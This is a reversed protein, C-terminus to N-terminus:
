YGVAVLCLGGAPATPGGRARSRAALAAEVDARTWRGEGVWKLTGVMNRVQHHLFSRAEAEITIEQGSRVVHLRDLTKMPSAAQCLTARFTSFDHHGELCRAAGAMAAADLPKPVWWVHGRDLVPPAKRNIIRYRYFRARASFRAHFDQTVREAHLVAVAAPRLHFNIANRVTDPAFERELDVHAVQGTAHVGADTRGAASIRLDEGCFRIIATEVAEQVSLGTRQRQWGVFGGGDYEITLKYRPVISVSGGETSTATSGGQSRANWHGTKDNNVTRSLVPVVM